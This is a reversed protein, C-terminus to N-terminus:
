KDALPRMKPIKRMWDEDFLVRVQERYDNSQDDFLLGDGVEEDLKWSVTLYRKVYGNRRKGDKVKGRRIRTTKIAAPLWVDHKRNWSTYVTGDEVRSKNTGIVFLRCETPM